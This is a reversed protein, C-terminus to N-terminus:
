LSPVSVFSMRKLDNRRNYVWIRILYIILFRMPKEENDYESAM